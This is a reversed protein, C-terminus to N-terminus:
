CCNLKVPVLRGDDALLVSAGGLWGLCEGGGHEKEAERFDEQLLYYELDILRGEVIVNM